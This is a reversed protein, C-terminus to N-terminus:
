TNSDIQDGERLKFYAIVDERTEEKHLIIGTGKCKSCSYVMRGASRMKMIRDHTNQPHFQKENFPLNKFFVIYAPVPTYGFGDCDECRYEDPIHVNM